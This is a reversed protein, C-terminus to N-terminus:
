SQGGADVVRTDPDYERRVRAIQRATPPPAWADMRAEHSEYDGIRDDPEVDRCYDGVDASCTPCPVDQPGDIM